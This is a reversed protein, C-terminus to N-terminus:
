KIHFVYWDLSLSEPGVTFLLAVAALLVLDFEWGSEGSFSNKWVFIKYYIAGLMIIGLGLAAVKTFLGFLLAVGGLVELVSVIRMLALFERTMKLHEHPKWLPAKHFGHYLFIGGCVLRIFLYAFPILFPFSLFM